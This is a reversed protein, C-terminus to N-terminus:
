MIIVYIIYVNINTFLIINYKFINYYSRTAFPQREGDLISRFTKFDNKEGDRINQHRRCLACGFVNDYM